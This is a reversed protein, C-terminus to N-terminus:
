KNKRNCQTRQESAICSFTFITVKILMDSIAQFFLASSYGYKKRSQFWFVMTYSACPWTSSQSYPVSIQLAVYAINYHECHQIIKVDSLWKIVESGSTDCSVSIANERKNYKVRNIVKVYSNIVYKCAARWEVYLTIMFDTYLQLIFIFWGSRIVSTKLYPSFSKRRM